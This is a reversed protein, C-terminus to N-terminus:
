EDSINSSVLAKQNSYALQSHFIEVSLRIEVWECAIQFSVM